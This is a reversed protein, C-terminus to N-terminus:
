PGVGATRFWSPGAEDPEGLVQIVPTQSSLRPNSPRVVHAGEGQLSRVGAFLERAVRGAHAKLVREPCRGLSGIGPLGTVAGDMTWVVPQWVTWPRVPSDVVRSVLGIGGIQGVPVVKGRQPDRVCLELATLVSTRNRSRALLGIVGILGLVILVAFEDFRSQAGSSASAVAGALGSAVVLGSFGIWLRTFPGSARWATPGSTRRSRVPM